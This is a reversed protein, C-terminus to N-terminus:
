VRRNILDTADVMEHAWYDAMGTTSLIKTMLGLKEYSKENGTSIDRLLRIYDTDYEDYKKNLFENVNALREIHCM